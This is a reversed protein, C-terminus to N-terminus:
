EPGGPSRACRLGAARLPDIENFNQLSWVAGQPGIPRAQVVSFSALESDFRIWEWPVPRIDLLHTLLVANTGGHAVIVISIPEDPVHWCTFDSMPAARVGHRELLDAAGATVRRHFDRFSEGEPWGDWHEDLPRRMAEVFYSDVQDRTMGHAGPDIEALSDITIAAVGTSEVLPEATEQARTLPSVYIADVGAKAIAIASARAQAVGYRTLGPDAVSPGGTPTWDPEGHRVLTIEVHVRRRRVLESEAAGGPEPRAPRQEAPEEPGSSM